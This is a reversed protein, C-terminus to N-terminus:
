PACCCTVTDVDHTVISIAPHELEITGAIVDNAELVVFRPSPEQMMGCGSFCSCSPYERLEVHPRSRVIVVQGAANRALTVGRDAMTHVVVSSCNPEDYGLFVVQRSPDDPHRHISGPTFTGTSPLSGSAYEFSRLGHSALARDWAAQNFAHACAIDHELAERPVCRTNALEPDLEVHRDVTSGYRVQRIRSAPCSDSNPSEVSTCAILGLAAM